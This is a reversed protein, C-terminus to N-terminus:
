TEPGHPSEGTFDHWKAARRIEHAFVTCGISSLYDFDKPSAWGCRGALVLPRSGSFFSGDRVELTQLDVNPVRITDKPHRIAEELGRETHGACQVLFRATREM